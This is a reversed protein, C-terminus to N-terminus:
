ILKGNPLFVPQAFTLKVKLCCSGERGEGLCVESNSPDLLLFDTYDLMFGQIWRFASQFFGSGFDRYIYEAAVIKVFKGANGCSTGM